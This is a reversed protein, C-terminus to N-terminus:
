RLRDSHPQHDRNWRALANDSTDGFLYKLFPSEVHGDCFVVNVKREHRSPVSETKELSKLRMFFAAGSFSDGIAMMQSPSVVESEAVPVFTELKSDFRGHLGLALNNTHNGVPNVGYVNYGYSSLIQNSPWHAGRKATPCRWVGETLFNTRPKSVDFGGRELQGMWTRELPTDSDSNLTAFFSPYAQNAAVFSQLAVGIQRLNGVCQIQQAKKKANSIAPLLLAALIGIVALVALLETLTFACSLRTKSNKKLYFM